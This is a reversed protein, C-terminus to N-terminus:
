EIEVVVAMDQVCWQLTNATRVYDCECGINECLVAVSGCVGTDDGCWENESMYWRYIGYVCEMHVGCCESKVMVSTSKGDRETGTPGTVVEVGRNEVVDGDYKGM